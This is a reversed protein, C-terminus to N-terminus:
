KIDDEVFGYVKYLEMNRGIEGEGVMRVRRMMEVNLYFKM